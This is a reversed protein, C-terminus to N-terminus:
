RPRSEAWPFSGAARLPPFGHCPFATLPKVACGVLLHCSSGEERGGRGVGIPVFVSYNQNHALSPPAVQQLSACCVLRAPLLGQKVSSVADARFVWALAGRSCSCDGVKGWNELPVNEAEGRVRGNLGPPAGPHRRTAGRRANKM